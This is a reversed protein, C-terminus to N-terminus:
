PLSKHSSQTHSTGHMKLHTYYNKINIWTHELHLHWLKAKNIISHQIPHAGVKDQFDKCTFRGIKYLKDDKALCM